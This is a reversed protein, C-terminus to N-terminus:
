QKRGIISMSDGMNILTALFTYPISLIDLIFKKRRLELLPNAYEFIGSRSKWELIKFGSSRVLKSLSEKDFQWIHEDPLLYPWRKGMMKSLLSGVNPVDIYVIGGRKLVRYVKKLIQKPNKLHELTHNLVVIDFYDKPLKTKQFLTRSITHGKRKAVIATKSPEVGWTEFGHNKFIDLFVGNSCGIELVRGTKSKHIYKQIIKYRKKFINQFTSEMKNYDDDRHYKKYNIKKM